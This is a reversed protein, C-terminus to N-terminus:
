PKQLNNILKREGDLFNDINGIFYMCGEELSERPGTYLNHYEFSNFAGRVVVCSLAILGTKKGSNATSEWGIIRMTYDFPHSHDGLPVVSIDPLQRLERKIYTEVLKDFIPDPHTENGPVYVRFTFLKEPVSQVQSNAKFLIGSGLLILLIVASTFFRGKM